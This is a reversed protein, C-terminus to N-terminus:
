AKGNGKRKIKSIVGKVIAGLSDCYMVLLVPVIALSILFSFKFDLYIILASAFVLLISIIDRIWSVRIRVIKRSTFLRIGWTLLFAVCTTAAAVGVGLTPILILNLILNVIAGVMSSHFLVKTRKAASFVSALFGSVGSFMYAIILLPVYRWAEFFDKQFLITALIKSVSILGACLVANVIWFYKYITTVFKSYDKENSNEFASLQWARTFILSVTSLITPIKYAVAYVGEADAGHFGIIVYKDSLQMLWWALITPIMPISYALMEKSTARDLTLEMIDNKMRGAILVFLSSVAEAIVLSLMYGAIHWNFCILFAINLGVTIATQLMGKVAFTKVRKTGRAYSSIVGGFTNMVFVVPLWYWYAKFDSEFLMIGPSFMCVAMSALLSILLANGLIAGRKKDRDFPFRLVAESVSLTLLPVLLGNTSSIIDVIGYEANTLCSTYLPVLFFTILKSGFSSISFLVTDSLLRKYKNTSM